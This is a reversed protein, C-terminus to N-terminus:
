LLRTHGHKGLWVLEYTASVPGQGNHCSSFGVKHQLTKHTVCGGGVRGISLADTRPLRPARPPTAMSVSMIEARTASVDASARRESAKPQSPPEVEEEDSRPDGDQAGELSPLFM